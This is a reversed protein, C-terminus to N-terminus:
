DAAVDGAEFHRVIAHLSALFAARRAPSLTELLRQDVNMAVPDAAELVKRGQETLRLVKARADVRSRRRQIIGRRVQRSIIEALTSRDIGAREVV